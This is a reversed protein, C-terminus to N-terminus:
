RQSQHLAITGSSRTSVETLPAAWDLTGASSPKPFSHPQRHWVKRRAHERITVLARVLRDHLLVSLSPRRYILELDSAGALPLHQSAGLLFSLLPLERVEGKMTARVFLGTFRSTDKM